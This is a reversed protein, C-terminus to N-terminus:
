GSCQGIPRDAYGTAGVLEIVERVRQERARGAATLRGAFPLPVGWRDGDLGLRVVDVGRVPTAADFARRQPLYGIRANARGVSSGLVEVTGASLPLLGLVVQLLTSKGVGNPGLVAVFEGAAIEVDVDSWIVRGGRRAAAGDLRIAPATM